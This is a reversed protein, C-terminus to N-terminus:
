AKGGGVDRLRGYQRTSVFRQMLEQLSSANLKRLAKRQLAYLTKNSCGRRQSQLHIPIEKLSNSLVEREASSLRLAPMRPLVEDDGEQTLLGQSLVVRRLWAVPSHACVIRVPLRIGCCVLARRVVVNVEFPSLVILRSFGTATLRNDDFYLLQQLAQAPKFPLRLILCREVPFSGSFVEEVREYDRVDVKCSPDLMLMHLLGQRGYQCPDVVTVGVERNVHRYAMSVKTGVIPESRMGHTMVDGVQTRRTELPRTNRMFTDEDPGHVCKGYVNELNDKSAGKGNM